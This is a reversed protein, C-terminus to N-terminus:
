CLRGQGEESGEGGHRGAGRCGRRLQRGNRHALQLRCQPLHLQSPGGVVQGLMGQRGSLMSRRWLRRCCCRCLRPGCRASGRRALGRSLGHILIAALSLRRRSAGTLLPLCRVGHAVQVPPPQQQLEPATAAALLAAPRTSCHWDM